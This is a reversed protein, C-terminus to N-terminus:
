GWDRGRGLERCEKGLHGVCGAPALRAATISVPPKASTRTKAGSLRLNPKSPLHVGSFLATPLCVSVCMASSQLGLLHKGPAFKESSM